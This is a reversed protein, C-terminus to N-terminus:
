DAKDELQLRQKSWATEINNVQMGKKGWPLVTVSKLLSVLWVLSATIDRSSGGRQDGTITEIDNVRGGEGGGTCYRRELLAVLWQLTEAAVM